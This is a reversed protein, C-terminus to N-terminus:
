HPLRPLFGRQRAAERLQDKSFAPTQNGLDPTSPTSNVSPSHCESVEEPTELASRAARSAQQRLRADIRRALSLCLGTDSALLEFREELDRLRRNDSKPARRLPNWVTM